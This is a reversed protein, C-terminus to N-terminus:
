NTCSKNETRLLLDCEVKSKRIIKISSRRLLNQLGFIPPQIIKSYLRWSCLKVYNRTLKRLMETHNALILFQFAVRYCIWQIAIACVPVVDHRAMSPIPVNTAPAPISFTSTVIKSSQKTGHGMTTFSPLQNTKVRNSSGSFCSTRHVRFNQRRCLHWKLRNDQNQESKPVKIPIAILCGQRNAHYRWSQSSSGDFVHGQLHAKKSTVRHQVFVMDISAILTIWQQNGPIKCNSHKKGPHKRTAFVHLFCSHHFLRVASFSSALM